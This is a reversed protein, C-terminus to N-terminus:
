INTLSISNENFSIIPYINLSTTFSNFFEVMKGDSLNHYLVRYLDNYKIRYKGENTENYMNALYECYKSLTEHIYDNRLLQNIEYIDYKRDM